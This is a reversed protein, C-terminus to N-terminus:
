QQQEIPHGDIQVETVGINSQAFARLALVLVIFALLSKM